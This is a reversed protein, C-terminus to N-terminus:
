VWLSGFSCIVAMPRLHRGFSSPFARSSFIGFMRLVPSWSLFSCNLLFGRGNQGIDRTVFPAMRSTPAPFSRDCETMSGTCHQVLQRALHAWQQLLPMFLKFFVLLKKIQNLGGGHSPICEQCHLGPLFVIDLFTVPGVPFVIINQWIPM